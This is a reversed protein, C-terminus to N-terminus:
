IVCALLTLVGCVLSVALVVVVSTGAPHPAARDPRVRRRRELRWRYARAEWRRVRRAVRMGRM